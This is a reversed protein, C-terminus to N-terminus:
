DSRAGGELGPDCSLLPEIARAAAALVAMSPPSSHRRTASKAQFTQVMLRSGALVAVPVGFAKALSCVGVLHPGVLGHFRFSGGGGRGYPSRATPGSGLVGLAQTDDIVLLGGHAAAIQAYPALPAIRGEPFSIGDTVIIPRIGCHSWAQARRLVREPDHVGVRAVPVGFAAAREIGWLAIPYIEGVILIASQPRCLVCFLDWFVHLTSTGLIGASCGMLRALSGGLEEAQAPSRVAAPVGITLQRFPTLVGSPHRMGLYLSSTFDIDTLQLRRVSAVDDRLRLCRGPTLNRMMAPTEVRRWTACEHYDSRAVAVHRLRM